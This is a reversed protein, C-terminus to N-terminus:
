SAATPASSRADHEGRDRPGPREDAPVDRPGERRGLAVGGPAHHRPRGRQDARGPGADAARRLHRAAPRHRPLGARGLRRRAPVAPDRRRRAPRALRDAPGRPRLVPDLDDQRRLARAPHDQQERERRATGRRGLMMPINPGTIDADLLGVTAGAQALAVALNVSVTSKGVGGKGSAVAIINKVGPVLQEAQRPQARRVMAGWTIEIGAAGIGRWRPVPTARSRTRSRAPRADDARDHVRCRVRRHRHGQGHRPHRHRARARAGPRHPPRRPRGGETIATM